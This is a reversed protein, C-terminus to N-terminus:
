YVITVTISGATPADPNRNAGEDASEPSAPLASSPGVLSYAPEGTAQLPQDVTHGQARLSDLDRYTYGPLGAVAQATSSLGALEIGHSMESNGSVEVQYAVPLSCSVSVSATWANPAGAAPEASAPSVQCGAAVTASVFLSNTRTAAFASNCLSLLGLVVAVSPLSQRVVRVPFHLLSVFQPSM